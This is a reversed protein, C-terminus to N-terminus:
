RRRGALPTVVKRRPLPRGKVEGKPRDPPLPWERSEPKAEPRRWSTEAVDPEGFIWRELALIPNDEQREEASTTGIWKKETPRSLMERTPLVVRRRRADPPNNTGPAKRTWM